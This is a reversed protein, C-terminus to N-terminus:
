NFFSEKFFRVAGRLENNVQSKYSVTIVYSFSTTEASMFTVSEAIFKNRKQVLASKVIM